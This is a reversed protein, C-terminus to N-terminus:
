QKLEKILIDKFQVKFPHASWSHFQLGISGKRPITCDQEVYNLTNHGNLWYQILAGVCRIRCDVWDNWKTGAPMSHQRVGLIRTGREDYMMAWLGRGIDFQYGHADGTGPERHSRFYIGSNGGKMKVKLTLEFNEYKTDTLLYYNAGVRTEASTVIAGDEVRFRSVPCNWGKLTKGDFLSVSETAAFLDDIKKEEEKSIDPKPNSRVNSRYLCHRPGQKENLRRLRVSVLWPGKKPRSTKILLPASYWEVEAQLQGAEFAKDETRSVLVKGKSQVEISGSAGVELMMKIRTKAYGPAPGRVMVSSSLVATQVKKDLVKDLAFTSPHRPDMGTTILQEQCTAVTATGWPVERCRVPQLDSLVSYQCLYRGAFTKGDFISAAKSQQGAELTVNAKDSGPIAARAVNNAHVLRGNLWAKVGDDSGLELRAPQATDSHIWTLAYAVRQEDDIIDIGGSQDEVSGEFDASVRVVAQVGGAVGLVLVFSILYILRKSM